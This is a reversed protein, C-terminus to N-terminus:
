SKGPQEKVLVSPLASRYKTIMSIKLLINSFKSEINLLGWPEKTNREM